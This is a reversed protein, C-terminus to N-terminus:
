LTPLQGFAPIDFDFSRGVYRSLQDPDVGYSPRLVILDTETISEGSPVLRRTYVSRRAGERAPGEDTDPELDSNGMVTLTGQIKQAAIRLEDPSLAFDSDYGQGPKLTFHKEIVACGSAVILPITDVGSTHDSFGPYFHPFENQLAYTRAINARHYPTPYELHCAMLIQQPPLHDTAAHIEPSTAAGTSIALQRGDSAYNILAHYTLDGSAIKLLPLSHHNAYDVAEFDFVSPIFRINLQACREIVPDWLSYPYLSRSFMEHQSLEPGGTHDYRAATPTVLTDANYWQVKLAHAGAAHVADAYQLAAEVSNDCPGAEAWLEIM